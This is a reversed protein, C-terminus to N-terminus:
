IRRVRYTVLEGRSTAQRAAANAAVSVRFAILSSIRDEYFLVCETSGQVCSGDIYVSKHDPHASLHKSAQVNHVLDRTDSSDFRM